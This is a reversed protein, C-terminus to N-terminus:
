AANQKNLIEKLEEISLWPNKRHIMRHCNSCLVNLDDLKTTGMFDSSSLAINHHVEAYDKGREGYADHFDFKCAECFLQGHEEIFLDKKLRVLKSNRERYFHFAMKKDGEVFDKKSFDDFKYYEDSINLLVDIAKSTEKILKKKLDDIKDINELILKLLNDIDSENKKETLTFNKAFSNLHNLKIKILSTNYDKKNQLIENMCIILEDARWSPMKEQFERFININTM